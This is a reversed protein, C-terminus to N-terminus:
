LNRLGCEDLGTEYWLLADREPASTDLNRYLADLARFLEDDSMSKMTIVPGRPDGLLTALETGSMAAADLRAAAAKAWTIATLFLFANAPMPRM